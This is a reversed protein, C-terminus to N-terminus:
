AGDSATNDDTLKANNQAVRERAAEMVERLKAEEDSSLPEVNRPPLPEETYRGSATYRGKPENEPVIERGQELLRAIMAKTEPALEQETHSRTQRGSMMERERFQERRKEEKAREQKRETEKKALEAEHRDDSHIGEWQGAVSRALAHLPDRLWQMIRFQMMAARETVPKKQEVRGEIWMRWTEPFTPISRFEEPMLHEFYEIEEPAPLKKRRPM